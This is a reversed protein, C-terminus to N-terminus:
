KLYGLGRLQRVRDEDVPQEESRPILLFRRIFAWHEDDADDLTVDFSGDQIEYEGIDAFVLTRKGPTGSSEEVRKFEEDLIHEIVHNCIIIDFAETNYSTKTIDQPSIKKCYAYDKPSNDCCM